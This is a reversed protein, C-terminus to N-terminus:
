REYMHLVCQIRNEFHPLDFILARPYILEEYILWPEQRGLINKTLGQLCDIIKESLEDALSEFVQIPNESRYTNFDSSEEKNDKIVLYKSLHQIIKEKIWICITDFNSKELCNKERLLAYNNTFDQVIEIDSLKEFKFTPVAWTAQDYKQYEGCLDSLAHLYGNVIAKKVFFSQYFVLDELEAVREKARFLATELNKQERKELKSM